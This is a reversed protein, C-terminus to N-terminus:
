RSHSSQVPIWFSEPYQRYEVDVTTEPSDLNELHRRTGDWLDVGRVYEKAKEVTDVDDPASLIFRQGNDIVVRTVVLGWNM